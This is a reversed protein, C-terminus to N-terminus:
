RIEYTRRFNTWFAPPRETPTEPVGFGVRKISPSYVTAPDAASMFIYATAEEITGVPVTFGETADVEVGDVILRLDGVGGAINVMDLRVVASTAGDRPRTHVMGGGNIQITSGGGTITLSISLQGGEGDDFSLEATSSGVSSASFGFEAEVSYVSVGLATTTASNVFPVSSFVAGAGDLM